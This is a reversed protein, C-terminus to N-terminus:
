CRPQSSGEEVPVPKVRSGLIISLGEMAKLWMRSSIKGSKDELKIIAQIVGFPVQNDWFMIRIVM